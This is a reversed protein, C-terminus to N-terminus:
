SRDRGGGDPPETAGNWGRTRWPRRGAGQDCEESERAAPGRRRRRSRRRRRRAVGASAARAGAAQRDGDGAVVALQGEVRLGLGDDRHRRARGLHQEGDAGARLDLGDVVGRVVGLVGRDGVQRGEGRVGLRDGPVVGSRTTSLSSMFPMTSARSARDLHGVSCSARGLGQVVAVLLELGEAGRGPVGVVGRLDDGVHLVPDVGRHLRDAVAGLAHADVVLEVRGEVGRGARREDAADVLQEAQLVDGVAGLVGGAAVRLQRGLVDDALRRVEDHQGVGDAAVLGGLGDGLPRREVRARRGPPGPARPSRRRRRGSPGAPRRSRRTPRRSAPRSVVDPRHRHGGAARPRALRPDVADGGARPATGGQHQAARQQRQDGGHEGADPDARERERRPGDDEGQEVPHRRGEAAPVHGAPQVRGPRGHQQLEPEGAHQEGDEDPGPQGDGARGELADEAVRQGIGVQEARGRARPEAGGQDDRVRRRLLDPREPDHREGREDARQDADAAGQASPVAAPPECLAVSSSAPM